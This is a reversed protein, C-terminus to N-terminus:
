RRAPPMGPFIRSLTRRSAARCMAARLAKMSALEAPKVSRPATRRWSSFRRCDRPARSVPCARRGFRVVGVSSGGPGAIPIRFAGRWTIPMGRWAKSTSKPARARWVWCVRWTEPGPRRWGRSTLRSPTSPGRERCRHALFTAYAPWCERWLNEHTAAAPNVADDDGIVGCILDAFNPRRPSRCSTASRSSINM